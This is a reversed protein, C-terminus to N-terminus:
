LIDEEDDVTTWVRAEAMAANDASKRPSTDLDGLVDFFEINNAGSGQTAADYVGLRLGNFTIALAVM